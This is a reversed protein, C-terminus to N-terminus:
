GSTVASLRECIQHRAGEGRREGGPKGRQTERKIQHRALGRVGAFAGDRAPRRAPQRRIIDGGHGRAIDRVIALGLGTGGEDVNRAEDLRVFPKFVEERQAPPIGPGDDDVMVILYRADHTASIAIRDGHRAANSVLNTLLRRIADACRWSPTEASPLSPPTAKGSPM